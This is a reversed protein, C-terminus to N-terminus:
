AAVFLGKKRADAVWKQVAPKQVIDRKVNIADRLALMSFEDQMRTCYTVYADAVTPDTKLKETLAGLLAYLVSPETPVTSTGPTRLVGHIDPLQRYLKLFAGFETAAGEGVCGSVVQHLLDVPTANLVDNVFEWSRPTPFARPNSAPDFGFLLSPRFRIFARLEPGVNAKVAWDQWDEVDVEMDLHIFRNLLPSILRHTGARDEARNSAAIVTWGEPLVYEGLRRDLTLQLFAAQVLPPAQALEDLLLVGEGARPLFEPQCWVARGNQVSPLGRLDVPDLLTARLDVLQLQLSEAAQKVVSSKGCGPPGWLYVPRKTPILATLAKSVESPKM